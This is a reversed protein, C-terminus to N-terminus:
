LLFYNTKIKHMVYSFPFHVYTIYNQGNTTFKIYKQFCSCATGTKEM